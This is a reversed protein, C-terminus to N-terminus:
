EIVKIPSGSADVVYGVSPSVKRPRCINAPARGSHHRLMLNKTLLKLRELLKCRV